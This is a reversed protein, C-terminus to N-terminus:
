EEAQMSQEVRLVEKISTVGSLVQSLGSEQLSAHKKRTYKEIDAESAKQHILTKLPNDVEIIEYFALRGRYGQQFCKACGQPQYHVVEEEDSMGLLKKTESDANVPTKCHPCLRRVLRQAIVGVLSSSILFPEVGMDQLRTIAGAASNTHLTSLVLHGTLSAQISIDATEKDRVEGVMVVDPDQRLIARLGAAFTMKAKENVQTQGIGDIHYEVPDEVTMINRKGDNLQYLASYLTTTKGSGTPGTVLLIGNPKNILKRLTALEETRMGLRELGLQSTEKQLLRMVVREGYTSPITSVRVDIEQGSLRLELRGDQPVRKEAIDLKAMVKIRSVLTPALARKPQVVEKLVGDVRFRVRMSKEFTEIHIDSANEKIAESLIANTLRIIPADGESELLDTNEEIADVASTLDLEDSLGQTLVDSSENQYFTVMRANFEGDSLCEVRPTKLCLRYAESLASLSAREKHALCCGQEDELLLVGNEEVFNFPLSLM